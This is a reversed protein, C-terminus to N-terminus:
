ERRIGAAKVIAPWRAVAERVDAAFREPTSGIPDMGQRVIQDRVDPQQLIAVFERNLREVIERPTGAPVFVGAWPEVAAEAYGLEVVTPVDPLAAMRRNSAVALPRLLGSKLHADVAILFTFYVPVEGSVLDVMLQRANPYPVHLLEVGARRQIMTAVLHPLTGVGPSAYAVQGPKRRALALLEDLTRVGLSQHAVIILPTELLKTVPAFAAVPDVAAPGMVSPLLTVVSGTYLLTHGDAPARAVTESAINYSVGPRNEITVPQGLAEALKKGLLRPVFDGSGAATPVVFKISRSPYPEADAAASTGPVFPAVAALCFMAVRALAARWSAPLPAITRAALPIATSASM